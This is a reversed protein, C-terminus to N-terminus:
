RRGGDPHWVPVLERTVLCELNQNKDVLACGHSNVGCQMAFLGLEFGYFDELLLQRLSAHNHGHGVTDMIGFTRSNNTM